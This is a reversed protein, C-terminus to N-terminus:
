NKNMGFDRSGLKEKWLREADSCETQNANKSLVELISFQFSKYFFEDNEKLKILEINGGTFGSRVYTEWRQWLGDNGFTTGVYQSGTKKDLILYVAQLRTLSEFWKSHSQPNEIITKLELASVRIKMLGPFEDVFNFPLVKIVEKDQVKGFENYWGRPVVWDIIIRNEYKVFEILKNQLLFFYGEDKIPQYYKRLNPSCEPLNENEIIGTVEYIGYLKAQNKPEALFSVITKCKRFAPMKQFSQYEDIVNNEVM